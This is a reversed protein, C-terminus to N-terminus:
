ANSELREKRAEEILELLSVLKPKPERRLLSEWQEASLEALLSEKVRVQGSWCDLTRFCPTGRNEMRCYSFVVPHGLRPCRIRIEEAPREMEKGM